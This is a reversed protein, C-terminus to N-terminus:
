LGKGVVPTVTLLEPRGGAVTRLSMGIEKFRDSSGHAIFAEQSEYLEYFFVADPDADNVHLIYLLTGSETQANDIAAQLKEVLEDRRGPQAPVRVWAAVKAPTPADTM